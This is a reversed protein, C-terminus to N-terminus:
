NVRRGNVTGPIDLRPDIIVTDNGRGTNVRIRQVDARKFSQAAGNLIVDLLLTDDNPEIVITDDGDTGQVKLTGRRLTVSAVAQETQAGVRPGSRRDQSGKPVVSMPGLNSGNHGDNRQIDQGNSQHEAGVLADVMAKIAERSALAAADSGAGCPCCASLLRRQELREIMRRRM